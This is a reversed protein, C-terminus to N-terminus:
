SRASAPCVNIGEVLRVATADDTLSGLLASVNGGLGPLTLGPRIDALPQLVFRRLHLRPHPLILEPGASVTNDAYLLDLDLTRPANRERQALRGLQQEVAQLHAHMEEPTCAAAVELVTNLFASTGPACDVPETEYVQGCALLQAEPLRGLLLELGQRLNAVRDGLNSGLAIGFTM